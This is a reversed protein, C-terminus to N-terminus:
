FFDETAPSMEWQQPDKKDETKGKDKRASPILSEKLYFNMIEDENAVDDETL